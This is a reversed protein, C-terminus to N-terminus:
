SFNGALQTPLTRQCIWPSPILDGGERPHPPHGGIICGVFFFFFLFKMRISINLKSNNIKKEKQFSTYNTLKGTSSCSGEPLRYGQNEIMYNTSLRKRRALKTRSTIDRSSTWDSTINTAADMKWLISNAQVDSSLQKKQMYYGYIPETTKEAYM